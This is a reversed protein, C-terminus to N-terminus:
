QRRMVPGPVAFRQASQVAARAKANLIDLAIAHCSEAPVGRDFLLLAEARLAALLRDLGAEFSTRDM